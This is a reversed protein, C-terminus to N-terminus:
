RVVVNTCGLLPNGAGGGTTIAYVCVSHNGAGTAPVSASFGHADGYGPYAAGVDPRSRNAMFGPYGRVGAPGTDYVHLEVADRPNNPNLAWGNAVIRSGQVTVSDLYGLANQVNVTQCGIMPNTFPPNVNIAYACVRNPGEGAAPVTAVFGTSPGAWSFAGVVDPRSQSTAGAGFATGGAATVYFHVNEASTPAGPDSAWGTVRLTSPGNSTVSDLSGIPGSVDVDRCQILKNSGAGVNIAFVCVSHRGPGVLQISGSFGSRGGVGPYAAAVDARAGNTILRTGAQTGDPRRDYVDVNIAQTPASPDFAWGAFQYTWGSLAAWDFFGVPNPDPAASAGVVLVGGAYGSTVANGSTIRLCLWYRGASQGATNWVTTNTGQNVPVGSAVTIGDCGSRDTDAIITATAGPQYAADQWTIPFTGSTSFDSRLQVDQLYWRRAGRDENPDWRITEVPTASLFSVNGTGPELLQNDPLGLDISVTRSGSYTLVDDTQGLAGGPRTWVVRAMTGGGAIDRLDFPGDYASTVTLNRYVRGDIGGAGVRLNIYPDNTVNTGALLTGDYVLDTSGGVGAVDAPGNLDWPDGLVTTAYDRDGVANPTIFRPLPAALSLGTWGGFGGSGRVGIRYSGAPLASLDISGTSGSVSALVGWNTQGSTNNSDSSDWDWVVDASGGGPNSWSVTAGSGPQSVRFWDLAFDSGAAGPSVALRLGNISGGWALPWGGFVSSGPNLIYTNWGAKLSFPTGGGCQSGVGGGPCNFWFLGASVDRSSYAEFSVTRYQASDLTNGPKAGDRGIFLPGGYGGWIPSVYGDNTFHVLAMGVGNQTNTVNMAPGGDLLLDDTNSYDWPDAFTDTAYDRGAAGPAAAAAALRGVVSAASESGSAAMATPASGLLLLVVVALAIRSRETM